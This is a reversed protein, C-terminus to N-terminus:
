RAAAEAEAEAARARDEQHWTARIIALMAIEAERTGFWQRAGLPEVSGGYRTVHYRDIGDGPRWRDLQYEAPSWGLTRCLIEFTIRVETETIREYGTRTM